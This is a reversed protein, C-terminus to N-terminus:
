SGQCTLLIVGLLPAYMGEAKAVITDQIARRLDIDRSVHKQLNRELKIQADVYKQIDHDAARIQLHIAEPFKSAVHPVVHPRLTILLRLTPLLMRLECLVKARIQEREPCEDMADVVLFMTSINKAETRLIESLEKQSPHTNRLRRSKYLDRIENSVTTTEQLLQKLLSGLVEATTIDEKYNFYICMVAVDDQDLFKERLHHIV